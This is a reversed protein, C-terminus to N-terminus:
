FGGGLLLAAGGRTPAVTVAARQARRYVFWYYVATGVAVAAGAAFTITSTTSLPKGSDRLELRRAISTDADKYDISKSLAIGGTVASTALLAGALGVGSWLLIRQGRTVGAPAPRDVPDAGLDQGGHTQGAGPDPDGLVLGIKPVPQSAAGGAPEAPQSTPQSAPQSSAQQQARAEREKRLAEKAKAIQQRVDARNPADPQKMLYQQYLALAKEYQGLNFHCQGINFLFGPLPRILYAERYRELAEDYEGLNFHVTGKNFLRKARILARRSARDARAQAMPLSALSIALLCCGVTLRAISRIM